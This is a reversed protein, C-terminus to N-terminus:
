AATTISKLAVMPVKLLANKVRASFPVIESLYDNLGHVFTPQEGKLKYILSM